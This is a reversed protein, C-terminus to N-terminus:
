LFMISEANNIFQHIHMKLEVETWVHKAEPTKLLGRTFILRRDNASIGGKKVLGFLRGNLLLLDTM